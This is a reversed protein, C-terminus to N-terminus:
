VLANRSMNVVVEARVTFRLVADAKTSCTASPTSPGVACAMTLRRAPSSPCSPVSSSVGKRLGPSSPPTEPM